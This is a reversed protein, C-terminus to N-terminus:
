GQVISRNMAILLPDGARTGTSPPTPPLLTELQRHNVAEVDNALGATTIARENVLVKEPMLGASAGANM